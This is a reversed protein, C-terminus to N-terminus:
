ESGSGQIEFPAGVAKAFSLQCKGTFLGRNPTSSKAATGTKPAALASPDFNTVSTVTVKLTFGHFETTLIQGTTFVM